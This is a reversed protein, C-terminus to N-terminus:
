PTTLYVGILWATFTNATADYYGRAHLSRAATAGDLELALADVFEGFDGYLRVAHGQGILFLAPGNARPVIQTGSPLTTLDVLVPGQLVHHRVGLDPNGNDLLLGDTGMSLFPALTGDVDWGVALLSRVDAVDVVSRAEFDAPATGFPRAFGYVVVPDGPQVGSLSLNGSAVEYDAPDADLEPAMGTGAFDFIAVRRRDIAQLEVNLQGPLVANVTGSVHTVGMRVAGQTADVVIVDSATDQVDGRVAVRQGISIADTGLPEAGSGAKYVKTDPGITVLVDDHFFAAADRPVITAGRVLLENGNRAIVNGLVADREFGPASSGALVLDATFEREAVDLTGQAVTLTGTGAAELARLGEVGTWTAGDVEFETADTVHVRVRGFDGDRDFFPRIAVTYTMETENADVFLGRVRIDKEDIPDIEALLYPEATAIAPTPGIDVAHSAALDFDVTLLAPLGRVIVLRDRDALTVRMDVRGLPDGNADVVVAPKAEGNAEVFVEAASYDLSITGAVYTGPPVNAATVLETLDVYSAFDIRTSRPLVEVEAGSAHELTISLVDVTYSLFDGDADTLGLLLTGCEGATSPDAPVCTGAQGGPADPAPDSGGGCAGLALVLAM